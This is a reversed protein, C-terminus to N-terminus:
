FFGKQLQNSRSPRDAPTYHNVFYNGAVTTLDLDSSDWGDGGIFSATIGVEKAQRVVLNVINYYDPLYIVDPMTLVINDLITSFDSSTASYGSTGVIEGGLKEFNVTFQEALNETCNNKPDLMVYATKDSLREIAFKAGVLGQFSDILCARFFNDETQDSVPDVGVDPNSSAPRIQIVGKSNAIDSVPLFVIIGTPPRNNKKM